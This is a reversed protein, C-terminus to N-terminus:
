SFFDNSSFIFKITKFFNDIFSGLFYSCFVFLWRRVLM